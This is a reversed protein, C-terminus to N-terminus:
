GSLEVREWWVELALLDYAAGRVSSKECYVIDGHVWCDQSGMMHHEIKEKGSDLVKQFCELVEQLGIERELRWFLSTSEQKARTIPSSPRCQQGKKQLGYM